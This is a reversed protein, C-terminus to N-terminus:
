SAARRRRATGCCTAAARLAARGARGRRPRADPHEPALAAARGPRGRTRARGGRSRGDRQRRRPPDGVPRPDRAALRLARDAPADPRGRRPRRLRADVGVRGAAGDAGVPARQRAHLRLLDPLDLRLAQRHRRARVAGNVIAGMAHERIGFPVNRGAHVRSFEGAGEFVTKTSEVLDAAGGIM